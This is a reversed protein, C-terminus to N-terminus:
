LVNHGCIINNKNTQRRIALHESIYVFFVSYGVTKQENRVPSREENLKFCRRRFLKRLVDILNQTQSPIFSFYRNHRQEPIFNRIELWNYRAAKEAFGRELEQLTKVSM